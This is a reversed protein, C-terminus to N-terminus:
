EPPTVSLTRPGRHHRHRLSPPPVGRVAPEPLHGPHREVLDPLVRRFQAPDRRAGTSPKVEESSAAGSRTSFGDNVPAVLPGSGSEKGLVTVGIDPRERCSLDLASFRETLILGAVDSSGGAYLRGKCSSHTSCSGNSIQNPSLWRSRTLTISVKWANVSTRTPKARTCCVINRFLHHSM